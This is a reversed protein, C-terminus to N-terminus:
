KANKPPQGGHTYIEANDWNIQEPTELENPESVSRDVACASPKVECYQGTEESAFSFSSVCLCLSAVLSAIISKTM